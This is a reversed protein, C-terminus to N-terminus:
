LFMKSVFPHDIQDFLDQPKFPKVLYAFAGFDLCRKHTAPDDFGTLIIVPINKYFGSISLSELLELGGMVPMRIDSIILDPINKVSLWSLAEMGNHKVVVKYKDCLLNELLWCMPLDDEVVLVKKM